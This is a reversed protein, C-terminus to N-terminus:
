LINLDGNSHKSLVAKIELPNLTSGKSNKVKPSSIKVKLDPQDTIFALPQGSLTKNWSPNIITILGGVSGAYAGTKRNCAIKVAFSGSGIDIHNIIKVDIKKANGGLLTRLGIQIGSGQNNETRPNIVSVNRIECDPNNTEFNIGCMPKTGDQYGAYVNELVLGDVSIISIGDRRNSRLYADKILIDKPANNSREQGIYIGDGWCDSIRSNFININRSGRIAIGMGYEGENGIHSYRDGKIVVNSITVNSVGKLSIINYSKKSSPKLRLESGKLFTLTKNSGINLGSDNVLLPFAPFILDDYRDIARQIYITYDASGDKVYGVPLDSIINHVSSLKSTAKGPSKEISGSVEIKSKKVLKSALVPKEVSKLKKPVSIEDAKNGDNEIVPTASDAAGINTAEERSALSNVKRRDTSETNCFIFFVQFLALSWIIGTQRNKIM